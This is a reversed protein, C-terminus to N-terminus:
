IAKELKLLREKLDVGGAYGHLKGDTGIVRHCPIRVFLKNKGIANAVARVKQPAGLAKAVDLYSWTKGYPILDLVRWVAVQFTTGILHIPVELAQKEGKFYDIFNKELKNFWPDNTVFTANKFINKIDNEGENPSSIYTFGIEDRVVFIVENLVHIKGYLLNINNM